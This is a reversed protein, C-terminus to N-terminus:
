NMLSSRTESTTPPGTACLTWGTLLIWSRRCCTSIVTFSSSTVMDCSIHCFVDNWLYSSLDAAQLDQNSVKIIRLTHHFNAGPREIPWMPRAVDRCSQIPRWLFPSPPRDTERSDLPQRSNMRQSSYSSANTYHGSKFLRRFCKRLAWLGVLLHFCACTLSLIM